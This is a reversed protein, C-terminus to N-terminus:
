TTPCFIDPRAFGYLSILLAPVAVNPRILVPLHVLPYEARAERV